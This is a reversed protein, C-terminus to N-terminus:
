RAERSDLEAQLAETPVHDLGHWRVVEGRVEVPSCIVTLEVTPPDDANAHWTAAKVFRLEQGDETYVHSDAVGGSSTIHVKM